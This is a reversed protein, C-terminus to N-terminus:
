AKAKKKPTESSLNILNEAIKRMDKRLPNRAATIALPSGQDCASVVHKGGDPLMWRFEINLSDAMRKVRSRGNLDTMKPARNLIFQVKEYPLEEAKLARLFRLANQASRMDLELLTFLLHARDLVTESWSLLANPLDIIVYDFQSAALDIMKGIQEPHMIELPVSDPPATLVSLTDRYLSLSQTLGEEDLIDISSFLELTADTRPTDLYTGVSGFQFGFDLLCVRGEDGLVSQLEWALNAAFTSAGVGGAGGFVPFVTGSKPTSVVDPSSPAPEPETTPAQKDLQPKLPEPMPEPAPPQPEPQVASPAEPAKEKVTEPAPQSFNHATVEQPQAPAESEAASEPAPPTPNPSPDASETEAVPAETKPQPSSQVPAPPVTAAPSPPTTAIGLAAPLAGSPLPYPVFDDAGSRMLRHLATASLDQTLIVTRIKQAKSTKIIEEIIDLYQEDPSSLAMVMSQMHKAHSSNLVSIADGIELGGWNDGFYHQMENILEPYAELRQSIACSLVVDDSYQTGTETNM